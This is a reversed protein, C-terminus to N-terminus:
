VAKLQESRWVVNSILLQKNQYEKFFDAYFEGKLELRDGNENHITVEWGEIKINM